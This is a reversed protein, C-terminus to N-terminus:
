LFNVREFFRHTRDTIFLQGAFCSKLTDASLYKNKRKDAHCIDNVNLNNMCATYELRCHYKKDRSHLHIVKPFRLM